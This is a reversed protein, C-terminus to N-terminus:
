ESWTVKHYKYKIDLSSRLDPSLDLKEDIQITENPNMTGISITRTTTYDAWHMVGYYVDVDFELELEVNYVPRSNPNVISGRVSVDDYYYADVYLDAMPATTEKKPEGTESEPPEQPPSEQEPESPLEPEPEPEPNHEPTTEPEQIPEPEAEPEPTPEIENPTPTVPLKPEENKMQNIENQLYGFAVLIATVNLLLAVVIAVTIKKDM